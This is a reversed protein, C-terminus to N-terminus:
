LPVTRYPVTRALTCCRYTCREEWTAVHVLVDRYQVGRTGDPGSDEVGQQRSNAVAAASQQWIHELEFVLVGIDRVGDRLNEMKVDLDDVVVAVPRAAALIHTTVEKAHAEPDLPVYAMGAKLIAMLVVVM